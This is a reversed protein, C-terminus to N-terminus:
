DGYPRVVAGVTQGDDKIPIVAEVEAWHYDMYVMDPVPGPGWRLKFANLNDTEGQLLGKLEQMQKGEIPVELYRGSQEMLEITETEDNLRIFYASQHM